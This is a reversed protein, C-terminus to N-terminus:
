HSGLVSFAELGGGDDDDPESAEISLWLSRERPGFPAVVLLLGRWGGAGPLRWSSWGITDDSRGDLRTWGSAALQSAFHEELEAIASDTDVTAASHWRGGGGGAGQPQLVARSPARLSPMREFGQPRMPRWDGLHRPLEWDLRVRLDSPGSESALAAVILLPGQGGRRLMLGDGSPGPMFGGQMPGPLGDVLDWGRSQLEKQYSDVVTAPDGPADFVAELYVPRGRRSRLLSGLLRAGSPMPVEDAHRSPLAAVVLDVSMDTPAHDLLRRALELTTAEDLDPDDTAM